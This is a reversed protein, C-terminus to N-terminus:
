IILYDPKKFEDLELTLEIESLENSHKTITLSSEQIKADEYAGVNGYIYFNKITFTPNGQPRLRFQPAVKKSREIQIIFSQVGTTAYQLVQSWEAEKNQRFDAFLYGQVGSGTSIHCDIEVQFENLPHYILEEIVESEYDGNTLEWEGPTADSSQAGKLQVVQAIIGDETRIETFPNYRWILPSMAIKKLRDIILPPFLGSTLKLTRNPQYVKKTSERENLNEQPNVIVEDWEDRATSTSLLFEKGRVEGIEKRSFTEEKIKFWHSLVTESGNEFWLLQVYQTIDDIKCAIWNEPSNIFRAKKIGSRADRGTTVQDTGVAWDFWGRDREFRGLFPANLIANRNTNLITNGFLGNGKESYWFIPIAPLRKNRGHPATTNDIHVFTGQRILSNSTLSNGTYGKEKVSIHIQRRSDIGTHTPHALLSRQRWLIPLYFVARGDVLPSTAEFINEGFTGGELGYIIRVMDGNVYGQPNEAIVKIPSGDWMRVIRDPYYFTGKAGEDFKRM